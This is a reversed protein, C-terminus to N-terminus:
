GDVMMGDIVSIAADIDSGSTEVDRLFDEGSPYRVVFEEANTVLPDVPMMYNTKYYGAGYGLAGGGGILGAFTLVTGVTTSTLKTNMMFLAGAGVAGVALGGVTWWMRISTHRNDRDDIYWQARKWFQNGMLVFYSRLPSNEELRLRLLEDLEPKLDSLIEEFYTAAIRTSSESLRKVAAEREEKTLSADNEYLYEAEDLFNDIEDSFLLLIKQESPMEQAGM